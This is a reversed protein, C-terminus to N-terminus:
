LTHARRSLADAVRNESRPRHRLSFTYDQLTEVWRGHRASLKKQSHLFRLAEHDGYLTFEPHLLYHRWYKLAQVIAYLERDYNTYRSKPEILKESFYSVLHLDQSLVAGIGSSSADTAVDFLRDFDPLRLVPVSLLAIKIQQFARDALATSEFQSNKLLDTLPAALSSFNKVFRCYFQALGHFSWVKFPSKPVPWDRIDATKGLDVAIGAASVVFGLFTISPHLFACQNVNAVLQESQLKTCVVQLHIEHEDPSRSYILIDDFYIVVFKGAFPRMVETMLRMFTSPANSLDFPMVLWEYLGEKTKFATKWEDGARIRM